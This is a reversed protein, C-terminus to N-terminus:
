SHTDEGEDGLIPHNSPNQLVQFVAGGFCASWGGRLGLWGCSRNTWLRGPWGMTMGHSSRDEQPWVVGM